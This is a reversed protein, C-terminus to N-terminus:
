AVKVEVSAVPVEGRAIGDRLSAWADDGSWDVGLEDPLAVAWRQRGAAQRAVLDLRRREGERPLDAVRVVEDPTAAHEHHGVKVQAWYAWKKHHQNQRSECCKPCM